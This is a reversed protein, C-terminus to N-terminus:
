RAPMLKSDDKVRVTAVYPTQDLTFSLIRKPPYSTLIGLECRGNRADYAAEIVRSFRDDQCPMESATVLIANIRRFHGADTREIAALTTADLYVPAQAAVPGTALLAVLTLVPITRM